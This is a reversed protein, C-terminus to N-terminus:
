KKVCTYKAAEYSDSLTDIDSQVEGSTVYFGLINANITNIDQGDAYHMVVISNGNQDYTSNFPDINLKANTIKTNYETKILSLANRASDESNFTLSLNTSFSNLSNNAYMAIIEEEGSVVGDYAAFSTSNGERTCTLSTTTTAPKQNSSKTVQPQISSSNSIALIVIVVVAIVVIGAILIIVLRLNDKLIRKIQGQKSQSDKTSQFLKSTSISHDPATESYALASGISGPVPDAPKLPEEESSPIIQNETKEPNEVKDTNLDSNNELTNDSQDLNVFSPTTAEPAIESTTEPATESVTGQLTTEPTAASTAAVISDQATPDQVTSDQIAPEATPTDIEPLPAQADVSMNSTDVTANQTSESGQTNDSNESTAVNDNTAVTNEPNPAPNENTDEPSSEIPTELANAAAASSLDAAVQDLSIPNETSSEVPNSESPTSESPDSESPDSESPDSESPAPGVPAPDTTAAGNLDPEVSEPAEPSLAQEFPAPDSSSKPESTPSPGSPNNNSEEPNM